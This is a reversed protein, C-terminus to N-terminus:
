RVTGAREGSGELAFLRDFDADGLTTLAADFAVSGDRLGVIRPFLARALNVDHLSVVLTLGNDRAVELLLELVDRARGPDVAAVPEDALLSRPRQFLARAVAARQREGGSLVSTRQFLLEGIGVRELVEHARELESWPPRFFRRVASLFGEGALGGALVNQSVRLGDVLALDQPVFGISRRVSALESADLSALPRGDVLVEGADVDVARQLTRLLTTKGAGSPGVLALVEGRAVELSVHELIARGGRRM